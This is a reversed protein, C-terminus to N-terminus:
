AGERIRWEGTEEDCCLIHTRFDSGKIRFCRMRKRSAVDEETWQAIVKRVEIREGARVFARPSEEGRLGAYASVEIKTDDMITLTM